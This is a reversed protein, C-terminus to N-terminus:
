CLEQDAPIDNQDYRLGKEMVLYAVLKVAVMAYVAQRSRLRMRHIQLDYKHGAGFKRSM